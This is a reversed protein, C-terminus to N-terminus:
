GDILRYGIGWCNIVFRQTEPDLRRRLRSAHSDLTRTHGHTIYGWVAELLEKKTFVRTPDSALKLLLEFEKNPLTIEVDNVTVRRTAPDVVLGSIRRPGLHHRSRRRLIAHVRALLEPYHFPKVLYDDAGSAFGRLRDTEEGCGSLVVVPLEPDYKASGIREDRIARLVELGSADPLCVDLIVLHPQCYHCLRLADAASSAPHVDFRDASLNRCLLDLTLQDDDCVVLNAKTDPSPM